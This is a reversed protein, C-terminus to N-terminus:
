WGLCYSGEAAYETGAVQTRKVGLGAPTTKQDLLLFALLRLTVLGWCVSM